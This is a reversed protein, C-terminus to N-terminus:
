LALAARPAAPPAEIALLKTSGLGHIRPAEVGVVERWFRADALLEVVARLHGDQTFVVGGPRLRPVLHELCTRTSSLLDV